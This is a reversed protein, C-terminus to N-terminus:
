IIHNNLLLFTLIALVALHALDMDLMNMNVMEIDVMDLMNMNVLIVKDIDLMRVPLCSDGVTASM